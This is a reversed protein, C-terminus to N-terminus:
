PAYALVHLQSNSPDSIKVSRNSKQLLPSKPTYSPRRLQSRTRRFGLRSVLITGWCTHALPCALIPVACCRLHHLCEDTPAHTKVWKFNPTAIAVGLKLHTFIPSILLSDVLM